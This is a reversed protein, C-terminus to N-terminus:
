WITQTNYQRILPAATVIPLDEAQSQAILIRDFPDRHLPPLRYVGMTHHLHIPMTTLHNQALQDILFRELDAPLTLKGLQAKISIEWSSAVSFFLENVGNSIFQKVYASLRADDDLWWLFTHTDLLARM